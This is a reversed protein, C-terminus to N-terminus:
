EKPALEFEAKGESKAIEEGHRLLRVYGPLPLKASLKLGDALKVQDGMIAVQKGDGGSATFTFGTADCMWDTAVVAHGAKHAARISQEDLKAALVHTSSNRFSRYYPDADLKVLIDGPKHGRTMEKIGPRAEATIKQMNKDDDVNTGLLVTE